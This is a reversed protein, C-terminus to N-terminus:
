ASEKQKIKEQIWEQYWTEFDDPPCQSNEDWGASSQGADYAIRMLDLITKKNM